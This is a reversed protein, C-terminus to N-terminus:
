IQFKVVSKELQNSIEAAATVRQVTQNFESSVSAINNAILTTEEAGENTATNVDSIANKVNTITMGLSDAAAAFEDVLSEVKDADGDYSDAM